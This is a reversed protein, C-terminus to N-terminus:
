RWVEDPVQREIRQIRTPGRGGRLTYGKVLGEYSAGHKRVYRNDIASGSNAIRCVLVIERSRRAWPHEGLTKVVHAVLENVQAAWIRCDNAATIFGLRIAHDAMVGGNNPADEIVDLKSLGWAGIHPAFLDRNTRVFRQLTGAALRRMGLTIGDQTSLYDLGTKWESTLFKAITLMARPTVPLSGVRGVLQAAVFAESRKAGGRSVRHWALHTYMDDGVPRWIASRTKPGLIGDAERHNNAQFLEVLEPTPNPYGPILDPLKKM